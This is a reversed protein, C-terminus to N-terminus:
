ASQQERRPLGRGARDAAGAIQGDLIALNGGSDVRVALALGSESIGTARKGGIAFRAGFKGDGNLFAGSGTPGFGVGGVDAAKL